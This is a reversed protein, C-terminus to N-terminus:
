QACADALVSAPVPRPCRARHAHTLQSCPALHAVRTACRRRSGRTASCPPTTRRRAASCCPVAVTLQRYHLPTTARADCRAIARAAADVAAAAALPCSICTPRLARMPTRPPLSRRTCRCPSPLAHRRSRRMSRRRACGRRSLRRRGHPLRQPSPPPPTLTAHLSPSRLRTSERLRVKQLDRLTTGALDPLAEAAWAWADEVM